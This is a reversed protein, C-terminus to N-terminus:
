RTAGGPASEGSPNVSHKRPAGSPSASKAADAARPIVKAGSRLQSQGEIVVSDGESVGSSLVIKDDETDAVKVNAVTVKDDAGVVYVFTGDPGHQVAQAPVTLVGKRTELLLRMKLFANPWLAKGPNPFIAKLRITATAENVENDILELKGVGVRMGEDRTYAEVTLPGAALEKSVKPLDDEPLTFLVAMPDLQTVVVIGGPDSAHVINGPDILRVGTVGDLPSRIQAYYIQLRANDLAAADSAIAATAQDATNQQDDVQQQPILNQTRLNTYRGLNLAANKSQATDRALAAQAQHLAIIFPRPDIQALSEGRKVTQGERFNVKDLRGDVQSRVTVTALPTANGLGELFVPVDTRQVPAVIVPTSRGDRSASGAGGPGTAAAHSSASHRFWLVGGIVGVVLVVVIPIAPRPARGKSAVPPSSQPTETRQREHSAQM